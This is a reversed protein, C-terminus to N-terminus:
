FRPSTASPPSPGISSKVIEMWGAKSSKGARRTHCGKWVKWPEVLQRTTSISCRWPGEDHYSRIHTLKSLSPDKGRFFFSCDPDGSSCPCRVFTYCRVDYVALRHRGKQGKARKGKQFQFRFLLFAVVLIQTCTGNTMPLTPPRVRQQRM